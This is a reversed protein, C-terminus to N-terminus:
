YLFISNSENGFYGWFRQVEHTELLYTLILLDKNHDIDPTQQMYRLVTNVCKAKIMSYYNNPIKSYSSSGCYLYQVMLTWMDWAEYIYKTYLGSELIEGLLLVGNAIDCRSLEIALIARKEINKEKEILQVFYELDKNSFNKDEYNHLEQYEPVVKSKDYWRHFQISDIEEKLIVPLKELYNNFEEISKIFDENKNINFQKYGKLLAKAKNMIQKNTFLKDLFASSINPYDEKVLSRLYEDNELLSSDKDDYTLDWYKRMFVNRANNVVNGVTIYNFCDQVDKVFQNVEIDKEPYFFADKLPIYQYGYDGEKGIEPTLKSLIDESTLKQKCLSYPSDGMKMKYIVLDRHEIDTSDNEEQPQSQEEVILPIPTKPIPTPQTSKKNRCGFFCTALLTLLLTKLLYNKM